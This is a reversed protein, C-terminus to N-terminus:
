TRCWIAPSGTTTASTTASMRAPWCDRWIKAIVQPVAILEAFLKRLQAIEPGPAMLAIQSMSHMM